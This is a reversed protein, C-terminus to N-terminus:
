SPLNATVRVICAKMKEALIPSELLSTHHGPIKHVEIGAAVNKWGLYPDIFYGPPTEMAKFLTITGAYAQPQYAKHIKQYSVELNKLTTSLSGDVAALQETPKFFAWPSHELIYQSISNLQRDFTQVPNESHATPMTDSVSKPVRDHRNELPASHRQAQLKTQIETSIGQFGRDQLKTKIRPLSYAAAYSLSSILRPVTPLLKAGGPAYTDFMALLAIQQGQQQLQQAMELAINGGNSLGCLLYPGQPQITQIQQIYDAAIDELRDRIPSNGDLERAQLGYVTQEAGLKLALDRYILVNFGGGHMCFLPPRDATGTQITVLPSWADASIPERLLNALQRITPAPLLLSLPLNKGLKQEIKAFLSVALLSYGGLEFFNDDLGIPNLNFTNEWIETLQCEIEDATAIAGSRPPSITRIKPTSDTETRLELNGDLLYRAIEGTKLLQAHPRFPHPVLTATTLETRSGPHWELYLDGPIGIPLLQLQSDLIYAPLNALPRGIPLISRNRDTPDVGPDYIAITTTTAPSRHRYIWRPTGVLERWQQYAATSTAAAGVVTVLRLCAPLGSKLVLPANSWEQWARDALNLVSVQRRDIWELLDVMAQPQRDSPLIATAGCSWCAFLEEITSSAISSASLLLRDDSTLAWATALARANGVLEAHTLAIATLKESSGSPDVVIAVDTPAVKIMQDGTGDAIGTLNPALVISQISTTQLRDLTAARTLVLSIGLQQLRDMQGEIPASSDIPVYTGGLKLIGLIAVALDLSPEIWLAILDGSKVGRDDLYHAFRDAQYNLEEYTFLRDECSIAIAKPTEIARIAVLEPLCEIPRDVPPLTLQQREAPDLMPLDLIPRDPDIVIEQLLMEFHEMMRNATSADFIDANYDFVAGLGQVQERMVLILDFKTQGHYIYGFLSDIALDPLEITSMGRGNTWPPNLAFKIQFLPSRQGDPAPPLEELLKEFPLDQHAHAELAEHKVRDLVSRFTPNGAFNTRMLLTGSFFGIANELEIRDRGANTFSVLLDERGSYRYLLTEFAALLIMFLSAGSNHALKLLDDHLRNSFMRPCRDGRYTQVPPRDFDTPLPIATLAGSLQQKWYQLQGDLVEGQLWSRQWQAFDAYQIPLEPLPSPQGQSFAAYITTLERYFIDSSSGDGTICHMCWIFLYEEDQLQILKVHLMLETALDFPQQALTTAIELAAADRLDPTLHRLDAIPVTVVVNQAIEQRPQGDTVPFTTRIIEHRRVIETLSREWAALDLKGTLHLVVPMNNASSTPEFQHLLWFRQQAFSLPIAGDRAIPILPPRSSSADRRVQQLFAIIEPKSAKLRDIIEPTMAGAPARYRLKDDELWIAIELVRLRDLLENLTKM